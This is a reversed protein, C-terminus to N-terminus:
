DGLEIEEVEESDIDSDVDTDETDEIDTITSPTGLDEEGANTAILIWVLALATLFLTAVSAM